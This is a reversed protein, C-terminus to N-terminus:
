RVEYNFGILEMIVINVRRNTFSLLNRRKVKILLSHLQVRRENTSSRLMRNASSFVHNLM